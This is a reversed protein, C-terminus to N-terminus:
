QPLEKIRRAPNGAVLTFPAVDKTVVSGAAVVAGRGITVGKLVSSKFGIWVDDEITIPATAVAPPVSHNAHEFRAVIEDRRDQWRLSHANSDHIDVEHAILVNSGITVRQTCWIRSGPGLFSHHDITVRGAGLLWIGGYLQCYDGIALSELNIAGSFSADKHVLVRAGVKAAPRWSAGDHTPMRRANLHDIRAAVRRLIPDALHEWLWAKM